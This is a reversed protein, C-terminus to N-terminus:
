WRHDPVGLYNFAAAPDDTALVHRDDVRAFRQIQLVGAATSVLAANKAFGLLLKGRHQALAAEFRPANRLPGSRVAVLLLFRRCTIDKLALAIEDFCAEIDALREFPANTRQAM